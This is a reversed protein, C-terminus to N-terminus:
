SLTMFQLPVPSALGVLGFIHANGRPGGPAGSLRRLEGGSTGGAGTGM